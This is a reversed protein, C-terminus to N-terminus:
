IRVAATLCDRSPGSSKKGKRETHSKHNNNTVGSSRQFDRGSKMATLLFYLTRHVSVFIEELRALSSEEQHNKVFGPTQLCRTAHTQRSESDTFTLLHTPRSKARVTTTASPSPQPTFFPDPPFTNPQANAPNLNELQKIIYSTLPFFKM